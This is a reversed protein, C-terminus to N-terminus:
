ISISIQFTNEFVLIKMYISYSHVTHKNNATMYINFSIEQVEHKDNMIALIKDKVNTNDFNESMTKQRTIGVMKIQM